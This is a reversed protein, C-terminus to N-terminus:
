DCGRLLEAVAVLAREHPWSMLRLEGTVRAARLTACQTHSLALDAFGQRCAPRTTNDEKLM